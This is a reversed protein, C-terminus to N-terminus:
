LTWLGYTEINLKTWHFNPWILLHIWAFSSRVPLNVKFIHVRLFQVTSLKYYLPNIQSRIFELM